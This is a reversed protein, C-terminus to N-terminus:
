PRSEHGRRGHTRRREKLEAEYIHRRGELVTDRALKEMAEFTAFYGDDYDEVVQFTWRGHVVNRGVLEDQIRDAVDDYGARRFLEVADGVEFDAKGTLQHFDYLKGRARIVTEFAETLTGVAEVAVDSVDDPRQHEGSHHATLAADDGREPPDDSSPDPRTM